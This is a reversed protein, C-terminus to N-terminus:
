KDHEEFFKNIDENEVVKEKKQTSPRIGPLCLGVKFKEYWTQTSELRDNFQSDKPLFCFGTFFKKFRQYFNSNFVFMMEYVTIGNDINVGEESTVNCSEHCM